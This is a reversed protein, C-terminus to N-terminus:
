CISLQETPLHSADPDIARNVVFESQLMQSYNRHESEGVSAMFLSMQNITTLLSSLFQDFLVASQWALRWAMAAKHQKM